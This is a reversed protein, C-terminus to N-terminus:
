PRVDHGKNGRACHRRRRRYLLHPEKIVVAAAFKQELWRKYAQTPESKHDSLIVFQAYVSAAAAQGIPGLGAELQGQSARFDTNGLWAVLTKKM